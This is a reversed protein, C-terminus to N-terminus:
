TSAPRALYPCWPPTADAHGAAESRSIIRPTGRDATRLSLQDGPRAMRAEDYYHMADPHSCRSVTPGVRAGFGGCVNGEIRSEFYRCGRCSRREPINMTRTHAPIVEPGERDGTGFVSPKTM